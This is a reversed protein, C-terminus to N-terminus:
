LEQQAGCGATAQCQEAEQSSCAPQKERPRETRARSLAPVAPGTESRTGARSASM